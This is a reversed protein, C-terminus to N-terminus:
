KYCCPCFHLRNTLVGFTFPSIIFFFVSGTLSAYFIFGNISKACDLKFHPLSTSFSLSLTMLYTYTLVFCSHFVIILDMSFSCLLFLVSSFMIPQNFASNTFLLYPKLEGTSQVGWMLHKLWKLNLFFTIKVDIDTPIPCIECFPHPCSEFDWRPLPSAGPVDAPVRAATVTTLEPAGVQLFVAPSSQGRCKRCGASPREAGTQTTVVGGAWSTPSIFCVRLTCM